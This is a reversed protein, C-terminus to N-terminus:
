KNLFLTCLFLALNWKLKFFSYQWYIKKLLGLKSSHLLLLHLRLFSYFQFLLPSTSKAIGFAYERVGKIPERKARHALRMTTYMVLSGISWDDMEKLLSPLLAKSLRIEILRLTRSFNEFINNLLM